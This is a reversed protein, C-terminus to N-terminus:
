ASSCMPPTSLGDAVAYIRQKSGNKTLWQTRADAASAAPQSAPAFGASGRLQLALTSRM